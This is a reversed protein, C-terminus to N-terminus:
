SSGRGRAPGQAATQSEPAHPGSPLGASCRFFCPANAATVIPGFLAAKWAVDLWPHEDPFRRALLWVVTILVTSHLTYTLLWSLTM